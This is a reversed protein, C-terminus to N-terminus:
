GPFDFPQTLLSIVQWEIAYLVLWVGLYLLWAALAPAAFRRALTKIALTMGTETMSRPWGLGIGHEGPDGPAKRWLAM